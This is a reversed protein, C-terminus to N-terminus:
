GNLIRDARQPDSCGLAVQVRGAEANVPALADVNIGADALPRLLRGLGGPKDDAWALVVPTEAATVNEQRLVQIARAPDDVMLLLYGGQASATGAGGRIDVGAAGLREAVRALEGPRNPLELRLATQIAM